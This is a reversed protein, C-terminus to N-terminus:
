SQGGSWAWSTFSFAGPTARTTRRRDTHDQAHRSDKSGGQDGNHAEHPTVRVQRTTPRNARATKARDRSSSAPTEKQGM